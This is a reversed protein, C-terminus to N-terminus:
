KNYVEGPAAYFSNISWGNSTPQLFVDELMTNGSLQVNCRVARVENPTPVPPRPAVFCSRSSPSGGRSALYTNMRLRFQDISELAKAAPTLKDYAQEFYQQDVLTGFAEATNRLIDDDGANSSVLQWYKQRWRGAERMRADEGREPNDRPFQSLFTDWAQRKVAASENPSGERERASEYARALRLHYETWDIGTSVIRTEGPVEESGMGIANGLSRLVTESQIKAGPKIFFISGLSPQNHPMLDGMEPKQRDGTLRIVESYVHGYLEEFTIIGDGRTAGQQPYVDARGSLGSLLTEFFISGNGVSTDAWAIQSSTSATIAHAGPNRPVRVSTQGFPKREVFSGGYCANIFAAAQHGSDVTESMWDKLERLSIAHYTDNLSEASSLVLYSNTKEANSFGHGSYAFVFRSRPFESLRRKFYDRLFYRVNEPTVDANRLVVIEDFRQQDRLAVTLKDADVGAPELTKSAGTMRPYASVAAILAFSRGVDKTTVGLPNLVQEVLSAKDVYHVFFRRHTAPVQQGHSPSATLLFGVIVLLLLKRSQKRLFRGGSSGM